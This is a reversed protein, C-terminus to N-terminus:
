DSSWVDVSSIMVIRAYGARVDNTGERERWWEGNLGEDMVIFGGIVCKCEKESM